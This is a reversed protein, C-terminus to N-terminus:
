SEDEVVENIDLYDVVDEISRIWGEDNVLVGDIGILEENVMFEIILSGLGLVGLGVLYKKCEDDLVSEGELQGVGNINGFFFGVLFFLGGGVFDEDSDMDLMIVVVIIIGVVWLLLDCGFGM